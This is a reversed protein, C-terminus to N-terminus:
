FPSPALHDFWSPSPAPALLPRGPRCLSGPAYPNCNIDVFLQTRKTHHGHWKKFPGYGLLFGITIILGVICIACMCIRALCM